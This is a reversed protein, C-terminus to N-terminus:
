PASPAPGLPTKTPSALGLFEVIVNRGGDVVWVDGSGDVALGAALWVQADRGLGTTPSLSTGATVGARNGALHSITGDHYNATWIDQAGDVAIGAPSDVGGGSFAATSSVGAASVQSVSNGYYNAVWANGAADLAIADAGDCCQSHALVSGNQALHTVTGDGSNALWFGHTTDAAIALPFSTYGAGLGTALPAGQTSYIEALSNSYNSIFIDGNTDAALASPYDMSDDYYLGLLQGAQASLAGSFKAISGNNGAHLPQNEITVWINNGPDITLGLSQSLTGVGYGAAGLPAGQASFASLVGAYSAVWVNGSADLALATPENMGGGTVSLSMTWDNPAKTLPTAFPGAASAAAYVAAVQNGPHKVINLAATFTDAPATGNAPTAAMFLASCGSGGASNVCSALSNALALIKGSEVTLGPPLTALGGTAPDALLRANLYGNQLGAGNGPSALVTTASGLFPALTWAAAATTIETVDLITNASLDGCSGAATVMLLAANDTGAALGPNGGQAVLLMQDDAHACTYDGTIDFSGNADSLVPQRLMPQATGPGTSLSTNYLQLSAGSVPQQGGHISGTVHLAGEVHTAGVGTGCGSLVLLALAPFVLWGPQFASRRLLSMFSNYAKTIVSYYRSM